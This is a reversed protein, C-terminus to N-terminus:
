KLAAPGGANLQILFISETPRRISRDGILVARGAL